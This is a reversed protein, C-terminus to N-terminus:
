LTIIRPRYQIELDTEHDLDANFTTASLLLAQIRQKRAPYLYIANAGKRIGSRINNGSSDEIYTINNIGDDVITEYQDPYSHYIQIDRFSDTSFLNMFDVTVRIFGGSKQGTLTLSASQINPINLIQWPPIKLLGLDKIRNHPAEPIMQEGKWITIGASTMKWRYYINSPPLLVFRGFAKFYNGGAHELQSGTLTWTFLDIETDGATSASEGYGSGSWNDNSVSAGITTDQGQLVYDFSSPSSFINNSIWIKRLKYTSNKNRFKVIAPTPIDSDIASVSIDAYNYYGDEDNHNYLSATTTDTPGHPNSMNVSSLEGEWYHRRTWGLVIETSSGSTWHRGLSKNTLSVRGSLIESRLSSTAGDPQVEIYVRNGLKKEQRTEAVHFAGNISRITRQMASASSGSSTGISPNLLFTASETVNRRSINTREGGDKLTDNTDITSINPSKPTYELLVNSGSNLNIETSGYTIKIVHAM